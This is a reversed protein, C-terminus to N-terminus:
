DYEHLSHPKGQLVQHQFISPFEDLSDKKSGEMLDHSTPQM